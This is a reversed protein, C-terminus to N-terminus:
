FQQRPSSPHHEPHPHLEPDQRRRQERRSRPCFIQPHHQTAGNLTYYLTASENSSLTVNKATTYSGGLVSATTIPATTDRTVTVTASSTNGAADTATAILTNLGELLTLASGSAVTIVAGNRTISFITAENANYTLITSSQATLGTLTSIFTVVPPTTDPNLPDTGNAIETTDLIGDNDDDLDCANGQSDGDFNAQDPNAIAPCNDSADPISDADTDTDEFLVYNLPHIYVAGSNIANNDDNMAGIMAYGDALAVYQGYNSEAKGDSAVLKHELWSGEAYNFLYAGGANTGKVNDNRSVGVLLTDNRLDLMNGFSDDAVGDSATLKTAQEWITGNYTFLYVAGANSGRDDDAFAGVALRNGSVSLSHGFFDSAAGDSAHIKQVQQWGSGDNRFVYVSGSASGLDSDFSAGVFIQNGEIAVAQGFYDYAAGDSATLKAEQVWITGSRHFIYVSGSNEGKDDDYNSSAVLRDGSIAVSWGFRDEAAIDAPKIKAQESWNSGNSGFVVVAGANNGAEDNWRAGGVITTGEMALGESIGDYALGDTADLLQQSVWNGSQNQFVYLTETSNYGDAVALYDGYAAVASGFSDHLVTGAPLLKSEPGLDSFSLRNHPNNLASGSLYERLNAYGDADLDFSADASNLSNLGLPIENANPLGDNDSDEDCADGMNDGDFNAQDPNAIAPCNDVSNGVGDADDDPELTILQMTCSDGGCSGLQGLDTRGMGWWSNDNKQLLTQYGGALVNSWGSGGVPTPVLKYQLSACDGLKRNGNSGWVYLSGDNKLAASHTLGASIVNWDTDSGVPVPANRQVTSNDGLRGDVNRGWAWLSGDSKIALSHTDGAAVTRWSGAAIQVPANVQATSNNGVQGYSNQGWAWLTGDSKIALSHNSGASIALWTSGVEIQVPIWSVSAAGNGLQGYFDWGWVWLTGDTKLTMAHYYGASIEKWNTATGIQVPANRNTNTGDGLQGAGNLGWAWLTGDSRLAFSNQDGATVSQWLQGTGIQVPTCQNMNTANGLQGDGNGGWAWLTGDSRLGLTHTIGAAIQPTAAWASSLGSSVLLIVGILVTFLSLGSQQTKFRM